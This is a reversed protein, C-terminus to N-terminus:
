YTFGIKRKFQAFDRPQLTTTIWQDWLEAIRQKNAPKVDLELITAVKSIETLLTEASDIINSLSIKHIDNDELMMAGQELWKVDIYSNKFLANLLCWEFRQDPDIYFVFQREDEGKINNNLLAYRPHDQRVSISNNPLTLHPNVESYHMLQSEFEVWNSRKNNYSLLQFKEDLDSVLQQDKVSVLNYVSESMLSVCRGFFNGASGPQFFIFVHDIVTLYWDLIGTLTTAFLVMM